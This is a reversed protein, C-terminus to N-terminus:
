GARVFNVIVPAAAEVLELTEEFDSRDGYWPDSVDESTAGPVFEMWLRVRDEEVGRRLLASRHQRTMVLILDAAADEVDFWRATRAPVAYGHESLVAVARHDIPNGVEEASVGSSRVSVDLGAAALRDRLVVEGMPSRCINGTCVVVISSLM